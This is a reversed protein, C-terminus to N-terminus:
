AAIGITQFLKQMERQITEHHIDILCHTSTKRGTKLKGANALLPALVKDRLVIYGTMARIGDRTAEYRRSHEIKVVLGKARLKKLDYAAQRPSFVSTPVNLIECIKKALTSSQFGRKDPSLAIVAEMVARMRVSNMDIGAVRTTGIRSPQPWTDLQTNDIFSTDVSKIVCLFRELIEKLIGIMQPFADVSRRCKLERANHTIVEIRLVREGKSYLKVTLKGFHVKFVTLTYVPREVVCEVRPLKGHADRHYPRNKYGFITKMTPVSLPGRTRDIIGNFIQEMTRGRKFLLNRSYEAQYLSYGYRFSTQEQDKTSLAFVLCASYIWRECVKVLRGVGGSATMTDAVGALARADSVVTFCNGEKAFSIDKKRAQREVYEHGNLIIQANFPPHPCLKIIIHGWEHDMIHFSYHNVFPYPKKLTINIGKNGYREVKRIAAPARGVVICFVGRFEPDTPIYPRVKEDKRERQKCYILPIGSKRTSARVRRAFHGAHRMLNTDDLKEDSGYLRRWWVRFGGPSQAFYYYANLVIRDVCDYTEDIQEQYHESFEDQILM